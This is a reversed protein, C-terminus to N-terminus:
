TRKNKGTESLTKAKWEKDSALKSIVGLMKIHSNPDALPTLLLFIIKATNGSLQDVIGRKSVGVIIVPTKINELRAHPIAIESGVFTAGLTERELLNNYASQEDIHPHIICCEHLLLKFAREKEMSEGLLVVPAKLVLEKWKNPQNDDGTVSTRQSFPSGSKEENKCSSKEEGTNFVTITIDGCKRLLQEATSKKGQLRHWFDPKQDGNGIIIESVRYEVAFRLITKVVDDDKLTVVTAGLNQALVFTDNHLAQMKQESVAPKGSYSQVFLAYWNRKEREAKGTAYHLIAENEAKISGLSVMFRASGSLSELAPEDRKGPDNLVTVDRLTM